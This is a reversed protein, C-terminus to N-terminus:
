SYFNMTSEQNQSFLPANEPFLSPSLHESYFRLSSSQKFILHGLSTAGHSHSPSPQGFAHQETAPVVQRMQSTPISIDVMYLQSTEGFHANLWGATGPVHAVGTPLLTDARHHPSTFSLWHLTQAHDRGTQKLCNLTLLWPNWLWLALVWM